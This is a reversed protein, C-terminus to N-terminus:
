RDVSAVLGSRWDPLVLSLVPLLLLGAVSLCWVLHRWAASARGLAAAVALALLVVAASKLALDLLGSVSVLMLPSSM